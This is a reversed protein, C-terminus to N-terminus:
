LLYIKQKIRKFCFNYSLIFVRFIAVFFNLNEKKYYVQFADFIKQFISSSLSDFSKRWDCLKKQIGIIQNKKSLKLWLVYDEKTRLNSFRNKLLIKKKIVVTSLGIDCSNLLNNYTLIKNAIQNGILKNKEDIINYSTHTFNLKEDKMFKIQIKLKDKSWRDDSDLFALFAGKAYKIGINRSYGAGINKKNNILKTNKKKYIIKNIIELDKKKNNDYIIIIEKKKYSQNYASKFAERFFTINYVPIIISVLNM